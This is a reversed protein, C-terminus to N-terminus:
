LIVFLRLALHKEGEVIMKETKHDGTQRVPWMEFSFRLAAPESFKQLTTRDASTDSCIDINATSTAFIMLGLSQQFTAVHLRPFLNRGAESPNRDFSGIFLHGSKYCSSGGMLLDKFKWRM